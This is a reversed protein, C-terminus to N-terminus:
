VPRRERDQGRASPITVVLGQKQGVSNYLTSNGTGHDSVGFPSTALSTIGWASVLDPDAPNAGIATQNSVLNTVTYQLALCRWESSFARRSCSHRRLSLFM